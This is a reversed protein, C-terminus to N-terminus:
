IEPYFKFNKNKQINGYVSAGFGIGRIYKSSSYALSVSPFFPLKNEPKIAYVNLGANFVEPFNINNKSVGLAFDIKGNPSLNVMHSTMSIDKFKAKGFMYGAGPKGYHIFGQAYLSNLFLSFFFLFVMVIKLTKM